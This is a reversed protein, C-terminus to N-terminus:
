TAGTVTPNQWGGVPAVTLDVELPEWTNPAYKYVPTGAKLVPDVM